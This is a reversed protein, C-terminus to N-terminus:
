VEVGLGPGAPHLCGDKDLDSLAEAPLDLFDGNAFGCLGHLNAAVSLPAASAYPECRVHFAEAVHAIKRQGTLGGLREAGPRVIDTANGHIFAWVDELLLLSSPGALPIDLRARLEQWGALDDDPLANEYWRFDLRELHRGVELATRRDAGYGGRVDLMLAVDAGVATRVAECSAMDLTANGGSRLKLATARAAVLGRALDACSDATAAAPLSACARVRDRHPGMAEHVPVGVRRGMLDWIAIDLPWVAQRPLNYTAVVLKQWIREPRTADEGVLMPKLVHLVFEAVGPGGGPICSLQACGELGEDDVVRVVLTDDLVDAHLDRVIAVTV